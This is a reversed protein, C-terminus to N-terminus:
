QLKTQCQQCFKSGAPSKGGCQPCTVEEGPEISLADEDLRIRRGERTIEIKDGKQGGDAIQDGQVQTGGVVVNGGHVIINPKTDTTSPRHMAVLKEDHAVVEVVYEFPTTHPVSDHDLYAVMVKPLTRGHVNPKAQLMLRLTKNQQPNLRPIMMQSEDSALQFKSSVEVIKLAKAVGYGQNSVLFYVENQEDAYFARM